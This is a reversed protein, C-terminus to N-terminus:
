KVRRRVAGVETDLVASVLELSLTVCLEMRASVDTVATPVGTIVTVLVRAIPAGGAQSVSAPTPHWVVVMFVARQVILLVSREKRM